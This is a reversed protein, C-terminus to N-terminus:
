NVEVWDENEKLFKDPDYGYLKLRAEYQSAYIEAWKAELEKWEKWQAKRKDSVEKSAKTLDAVDEVDFERSFDKLNKRIKKMEKESLLSDPRPRWIFQKFGPIMQKSISSGTFNWMIIGTDTQTQWSSVCTVVYRGTPDWEVSTCAYHEESALLTNEEADWFQLAGQRLGVLVCFRGKPSWSVYNVGKAEVSKTINVETMDVGPVKTKKKNIEYFHAVSKSTESALVVFRRGRPEWFLGHIEENEATEFVDVPIDKERLSYLEFSTMIQKKSKSRDVKVILYDGNSQWFL